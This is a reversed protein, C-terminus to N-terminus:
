SAAKGKQPPTWLDKEACGLVHALLKVTQISPKRGNLNQTFSPTTMGILEAVRERTLDKEIMLDKVLDPNWSLTKKRKM